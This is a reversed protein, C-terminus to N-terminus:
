LSPFGLWNTIRILSVIVGAESQMFLKLKNSSQKEGDKWSERELKLITKKYYSVSHEHIDSYFKLVQDKM